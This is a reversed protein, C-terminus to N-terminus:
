KKWLFSVFINYLVDCSILDIINGIVSFFSVCNCFNFILVFGVRHSILINILVDSMRTLILSQKIIFGGIHYLLTTIPSMIQLLCGELTYCHSFICWSDLLAETSAYACEQGALYLTYPCLTSHCCPKQKGFHCLLELNAHM